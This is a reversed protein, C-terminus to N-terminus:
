HTKRFVLKRETPRDNTQSSIQNARDLMRRNELQEKILRCAIRDDIELSFHTWNIALLLILSSHVHRM